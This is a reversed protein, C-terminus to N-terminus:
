GDLVERIKKLIDDPTASKSVFNGGVESIGHSDIVDGTYGSIFLCKISPKQLRIAEYVEMGNKQPMRVDLLALQVKQKNDMFVRLADEGDKAELVDYGAM